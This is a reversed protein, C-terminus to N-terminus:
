QYIDAACRGVNVRDAITLGLLRLDGDIAFFTFQANFPQLLRQIFTGDFAVQTHAIGRTAKVFANSLFRQCGNSRCIIRFFTVRTGAVDSKNRLRRAIKGHISRHCASASLYCERAM